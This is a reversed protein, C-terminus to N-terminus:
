ELPEAAASLELQPVFYSFPNLVLQVATPPFRPPPLPLTLLAFFPPFTFSISRGVRFFFTKPQQKKLIFTDAETVVGGSFLIPAVIWM